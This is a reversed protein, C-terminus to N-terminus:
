IFLIDVSSGGDILVRQLEVGGVNASIIFTDAHPYFPTNCDKAQCTIPVTAYMLLQPPPITMVHHVKQIYARRQRKSDLPVVITRVDRPGGHLHVM